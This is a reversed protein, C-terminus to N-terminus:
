SGTLDPLSLTVPVWDLLVTVVRGSYLETFRVYVGVYLSGFILVLGDYLLVLTFEFM